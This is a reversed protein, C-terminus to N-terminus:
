ADAVVELAEKLDIKGTYYAKGIIIGKINKQNLSFTNKIDEINKVGGAIILDNNTNKAFSEIKKVNLGKLTGDRDVDTYVFGKIPLKSYLQILNEYSTDSGKLWGQTMIKNNKEDAGIYIKNPYKLICETLFEPSKTALSGIILSSIGGELWNCIQNKSRIGGGLQIELSTNKKINRIVEENEKSENIAADLDVIHLNTCGLSEFFFAQEIPNPNYTTATELKGKTLRVCKGKHIDIAPIILM